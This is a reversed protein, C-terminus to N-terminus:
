LTTPVWVRLSRQYQVERVDIRPSIQVDAKTRSHTQKTRCTSARAKEM